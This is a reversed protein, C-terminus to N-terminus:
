VVSSKVGCGLTESDENSIMSKIGSPESSGSCFVCNHFSNMASISGLSVFSSSIKLSSSASYSDPTLESSSIVCASNTERTPLSNSMGSGVGSVTLCSIVLGSFLPRRALVTFAILFNNTLFDVALLFGSSVALMLVVSSVFYGSNFASNSLKRISACCNYSAIIFLRSVVSRINSFKLNAFLMFSSCLNLSMECINSENWLSTREVAISCTFWSACLLMSIRLPLISVNVWVLASRLRIISSSLSFAFFSCGTIISRITSLVGSSSTLFKCVSTKVLLSSISKCFISFVSNFLVM